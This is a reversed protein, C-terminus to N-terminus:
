VHICSSRPWWQVNCSSTPAVSFTFLNSFTVCLCYRPREVHRSMSWFANFSEELQCVLSHWTECLQKSSWWNLCPSSWDTSSNESTQVCITTFNNKALIPRGPMKLDTLLSELNTESISEPMHCVIPCHNRVNMVCVIESLLTMRCVRCLM